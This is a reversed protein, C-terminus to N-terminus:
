LPSAASRGSLAASGAAGRFSGTRRRSRWGRTRRRRGTEAGPPGQEAEAPHRGRSPTARPQARSGALAQRRDDRTVPVAEEDVQVPTYTTQPTYATRGASATWRRACGSSPRSPRGTGSPRGSRKPGVQLLLQPAPFVPRPTERKQYAGRRAPWVRTGGDPAPPRPSRPECSSGSPCSPCAPGSAGPAAPAGAGQSGHPSSGDPRPPASPRRPSPTHAAPCWTPVSGQAPADM